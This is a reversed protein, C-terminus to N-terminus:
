NNALLGVWYNTQGKKKPILLQLNKKWIKKNKCNLKKKIWREKRKLIVFTLSVLAKLKRNMKQNSAYGKV